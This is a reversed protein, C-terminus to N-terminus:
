GPATRRSRFVLRRVQQRFTPEAGMDADAFINRDDPEPAAQDAWSAGRDAPPPPVPDPLPRAFMGAPGAVTEAGRPQEASGARLRDRMRLARRELLDIQREIRALGAQRQSQSRLTDAESLWGLSGRLNGLTLIVDEVLFVEFESRLAHQM